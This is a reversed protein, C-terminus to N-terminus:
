PNCSKQFQQNMNSVVPRSSELNWWGEFLAGWKAHCVWQYYMSWYGNGSAWANSENLAEHFSDYRQFQSLARGCPSPYTNSCIKNNYWSPFGADIYSACSGSWVPDAVVPYVTGNVNHKVVQTLDQGDTTFYTELDKGNADKAWPHNIFVIGIGESNYLTASGDESVKIYEDETLSLIYKYEIPAKPNDIITTMRVGGNSTAQVANAFDSQSAYAVVGNAVPQAETANETKPLTIELSVGESEMVIPQDSERPIEVTGGNTESVIANEADSTTVVNASEELLGDISELSQKTEELDVKGVSEPNKTLSVKGDDYVLQSSKNIPTATEGVTEITQTQQAQTETAPVNQSALATLALPNLIMAGTASIIVLRQGYM